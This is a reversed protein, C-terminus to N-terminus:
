RDPFLLIRSRTLVEIGGPVVLVDNELRLGGLDGCYVGPEVAFVMGPEIIFSSDERNRFVPNEHAETGIGHGLAHPMSFGLGSLLDDVKKSVDFGDAGPKILSLALDYAREVAEKMRQAKETLPGFICPVTVDTVMGNFRIGFDVLSLGPVAFLEATFGPYAHIGWSRSPGAAITEFAPGFAGLTRLRRDIFFAVDLESILAGSMLERELEDIIVSTISCAEKLIETEKASKVCKLKDLEGDVGGSRCLITGSFGEKLSLYEPHPTASSVEVAPSILGERRVIDELAPKMRRNYSNYPIIEDACAITKALLDDWAVLVCKGKATVFVIGGEPMGTLYSLGANRRGETDELAVMDIGQERM